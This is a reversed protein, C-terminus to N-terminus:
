SHAPPARVPPRLLLPPGRPGASQAPDSIIVIAEVYHPVTAADPVPLAPLVTTGCHCAACIAHSRAPAGSGDPTQNDSSPACLAPHDLPDLMAAMARVMWVPQAVQLAIAVLWISLAWLRRRHPAHNM